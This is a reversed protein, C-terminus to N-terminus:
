RWNSLVAELYAKVPGRQLHQHAFQNRYSRLCGYCSTKDGCGCEGNVRARAAELCDELMKEDELRAVLGAGGPVNDYLVIPPLPYQEIHAVTASLDTSPVELVAAAGEVLAYALSYALWAPETEGVPKPHFQLQLVDTVFEHGLSVRGLVGQCHRGYPTDHPMKRKQFGAGCEGCVWFGAARRGECLVVLYGPSVTACTVMGFPIKDGAGHKFGAFYPRTTFVRASRGSPEKPNEWTTVFGFQPDVYETVMMKECCSDCTLEQKSKARVFRNHPICRGYWWRDWEKGAVRKLGYSTWEKKNAVLKSTPAFEAVAIALDRQLCVEGSEQSHQTKQTDLEVVDVPFGYKPIVAKRSLFSPVLEEAITKARANAWGAKKYGAPTGEQACAREIEKVKIYDSSVETEALSLRSDGETIRLIWSGDHLGVEAASATPVIARLSAELEGRRATLFAKFDAVGSPHELNGLLAAVTKFRDRCVRFFRSLVTAVIHRAIIKENRLTLVPPRVRGRLM